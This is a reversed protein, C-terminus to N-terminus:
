RLWATEGVRDAVRHVGGAAGGAAAYGRSVVPGASGSGRSVVPGASGSGRSVVPRAPPPSV